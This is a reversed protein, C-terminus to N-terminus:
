VQINGHRLHSTIVRVIFVGPITSSSSPLLLILTCQLIEDQLLACAVHRWRKATQGYQMCDYREQTYHSVIVQLHVLVLQGKVSVSVKTAKSVVFEQKLREVCIYSM